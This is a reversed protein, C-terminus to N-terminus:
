QCRQPDGLDDIVEYADGTDVGIGSDEVEGLKAQGVGIGDIALDRQPSPEESGAVVAASVALDAHGVADGGLRGPGALNGDCCCIGIEEVGAVGLVDVGDHEGVAGTAM